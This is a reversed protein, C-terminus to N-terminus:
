AAWSPRSSLFSISWAMVLIRTDVSSAVIVTIKSAAQAQAQALLMATCVWFAILFRKM